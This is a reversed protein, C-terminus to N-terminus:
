SKIMSKETMELRSMVKKQLTRLKYNATKQRGKALLAETTGNHFVM